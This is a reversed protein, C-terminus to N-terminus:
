RNPLFVLLVTFNVAKDKVVVVSDVYQHHEAVFDFAAYM